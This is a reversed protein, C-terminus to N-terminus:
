TFSGFILAAPKLERVDSLKLPNEGRVDSLEFDPALDGPKPALPSYHRQWTAWDERNM